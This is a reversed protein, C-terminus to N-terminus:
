KTKRPDDFYKDTVSDPPHRDAQNVSQSERSSRVSKWMTKEMIQFSKVNVVWTTSRFEMRNSEIIVEGQCLIDGRGSRESQITGILEVNKLVTTITEYRVWCILWSRTWRTPRRTRRRRIWSESQYNDEMTNHRQDADGAEARVRRGVAYWEQFGAFTKKKFHDRENKLIEGFSQFSNLDTLVVDWRRTKTVKNRQM